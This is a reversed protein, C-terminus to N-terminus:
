IKEKMNKGENKYDPWFGYEDCLEKIRDAGVTHNGILILLQLIMEQKREEISM